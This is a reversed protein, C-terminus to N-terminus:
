CGESTRHGLGRGRHGYFSTVDRKPLLDRGIGLGEGGPHLAPPLPLEALEEPKLVKAHVEGMQCGAGHRRKTMRVGPLVLKEVDHLTAGGQAGVFAPKLERRAHAHAELRSGAIGVM